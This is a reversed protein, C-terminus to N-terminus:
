GLSVDSKANIVESKRASQVCGYIRSAVYQGALGIAVIGAVVVHERWSSPLNAPTGNYGAVILAVGGPMSFAALFVLVTHPLDFAKKFYLQLGVYTSTCVLGATIGITTTDM